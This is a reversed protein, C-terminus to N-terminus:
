GASEIPPPGDSRGQHFGMPWVERILRSTGGGYAPITAVVAEGLRAGLARLAPPYRTVDPSLFRANAEEGFAIVSIERGPTIGAAALRRYLGIALTQTALLIATPRPDLSLLRDGLPWGGDESNEARIILAPAVPLGHRDMAARFADVFLYGYNLESAMTGIAINRHGKAVLRDVADDAVGVFDLDIWPYEGETASRGFAVFPIHRELLFSIRPEIFQIDAIILGDALRRGAIRRLHDYATELPGSLLVMLDLDRGALFTRLGDMIPVFISDAVSLGPNTPMIMAVMGTTGQRLSRGAHNPTYGLLEAAEVVRRRTEDDVYQRGNLARSVTGISLGLHQAVARINANGTKTIVV